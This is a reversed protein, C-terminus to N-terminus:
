LSKEESLLIREVFDVLMMVHTMTRKQKKLFL